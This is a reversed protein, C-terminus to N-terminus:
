RWASALWKSGGATGAGRRRPRSRDARQPAPRREGAGAAAVTGGVGLGVMALVRTRAADESPGESTGRVLLEKELDNAAGGSLLRAPDSM